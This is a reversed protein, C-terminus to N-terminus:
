PVVEFPLLSASLGGAGPLVETGDAATARAGFRWGGVTAPATTVASWTTIGGSTSGAILNVTQSVSGSPGTLGMIVQTAEGEVTVTCALPAGASVMNPVVNYDIIRLPMVPGPAPAPSPSPSPEPSPPVEVTTDMGTSGPISTAAKTSTKATSGNSSTDQKEDDGCGSIAAMFVTTLMLLFTATLLAAARFRKTGKHFKRFGGSM